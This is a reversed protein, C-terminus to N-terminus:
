NIQQYICACLITNGNSGKTDSPTPVRHMSEGVKLTSLTESLTNQARQMFSLLDKTIYRSPSVEMPQKQSRPSVSMVPKEKM